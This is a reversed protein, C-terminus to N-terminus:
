GENKFILGKPDCNNPGFCRCQLVVHVFISLCLSKGLQTGPGSKVTVDGSNKGSLWLAKIYKSVQRQKRSRGTSPNVRQGKSEAQVLAAQLGYGSKQEVDGLM